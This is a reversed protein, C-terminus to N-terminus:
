IKRCLIQYQAGLPLNAVHPEMWRLWRLLRPFIFLFDTRVIEFGGAQLLGRACRASLPVADRDFPIRSMVYRTGPNWPNNECLAFLGGTRLSRNVYTIAAAREGPLIHHFVGNSFALDLESKPECENFLLFRVKKSNYRNRAAELCKQSTDVGVVSEVGILDFLYPVSAGTGCGFDM